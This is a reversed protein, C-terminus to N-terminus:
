PNILGTLGAILVTILAYGVLQHIYFYNRVIPHELYTETYTNDFHADNLRVLPLLYDVSFWFGYIGLTARKQANLEGCFHLFFCGAIVWVAAWYAVTGILHQGIGFGMLWQSLILVIKRGPKAAKREAVKGRHLVTNAFMREGEDRLTSALYHYPQLTFESLALLDMLDRALKRADRRQGVGVGLRDYSLGDFDVVNKVAAGELVLDSGIIASTLYLSASALDRMDLRHEIQTELMIVDALTTKEMILNGSIKTSELSLLGAIEARFMNLSGAISASRFVLDEHFLCRKLYAAKVLVHSLDVRGHFRAGTMDIVGRISSFKMNLTNEDLPKADLGENDSTTLVTRDGVFVSDRLSISKDSVISSLNVVREFRSNHLSLPLRLHGNSLDLDDPFYAGIIVVGHRTLLRRYSPDLLIRELFASSIKRNDFHRFERSENPDFREPDRNNMDAYHGNCAQHWVWKEPETWDRFSAQTCKDIRSIAPLPITCVFILLAIVSLRVIHKNDKRRVPLTM